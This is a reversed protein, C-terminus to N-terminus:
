NITYVYSFRWFCGVKDKLLNKYQIWYLVLEEMHTDYISDVLMDTEVHIGHWVFLSDNPLHFRLYQDILSTNTGCILFTLCFNDRGSSRCHSSIASMNLPWQVSATTVSTFRDMPLIHAMGFLIVLMKWGSSKDTLLLQLNKKRLSACGQCERWISFCIFSPLFAWSILTSVLILM